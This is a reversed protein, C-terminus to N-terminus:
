GQRQLLIKEAIKHSRENDVDIAAAGDSVVVQRVPFGFRRGVSGFFTETSGVGLKFRLLNVLGFARAIRMPFKVFQGGARFTEAARLARKSGIWYLNCNSFEGDTFHYFRRQGEPHVALVAERRAMAVAGGGAAEAAGAVFEAVTAPTLLVNDATTLMIPGDIQGAGALVSDVINHSPEVYRRPKTAGVGAHALSREIEHEQGAVIWIGGIEPSKELAEVVHAILAKGAVPVLCKLAVGAKQALPDLRGDRKGALVLASVTPFEVPVSM